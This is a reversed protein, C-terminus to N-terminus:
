KKFHIRTIEPVAISARATANEKVALTAITGPSYKILIKWGITFFLKLQTFVKKSTNRTLEATINDNNKVPNVSISPTRSPVTNAANHVPGITCKKM